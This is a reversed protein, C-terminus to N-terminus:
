AGSAACPPGQPLWSRLRLESALRLEWDLAPRQRAVSTVVVGDSFVVGPCPEPRAAM